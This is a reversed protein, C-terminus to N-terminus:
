KQSEFDTQVPEDKKHPSGTIFYWLQETVEVPKRGSQARPKQSFKETIKL